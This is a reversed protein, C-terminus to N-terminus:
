FLFRQLKAEKASSTGSNTHAHFAYSGFLRCRDDFCGISQSSSSSHNSWITQFRDSSEGTTFYALFLTGGFYGKTL